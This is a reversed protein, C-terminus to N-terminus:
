RPAIRLASARALADFDHDSHLLEVDYDIAIAAILCDIHRRVTLGTLRAQRYLLAAQEYHSPTTPLLAARSLMGRLLRLHTDDRAGALLEMVIPDCTAADAELLADVQHCVPSGTDRLFEIWASTDILIM